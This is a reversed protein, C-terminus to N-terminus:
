LLDLFLQNHIEALSLLSFQNTLHYEIAREAASRAAPFIVLRPM